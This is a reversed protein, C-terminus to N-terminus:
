FTDISLWSAPGSGEDPNKFLTLNHIQSENLGTSSYVVVPREVIVPARLTGKRSKGDLVATFNAGEPRVLAEFYVATGAIENLLQVCSSFIESV